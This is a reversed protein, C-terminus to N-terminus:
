EGFKSKCKSFLYDDCLGLKCSSYEFSILVLSISSLSFYFNLLIYYIDRGSTYIKPSADFNAKFLLCFWFRGFFQWSFTAFRHYLDFVFTLLWLPWLVSNQTVTKFGKGLAIMYLLCFRFRTLFPSPTANKYCFTRYLDLIFTLPWLPWYSSIRCLLKSARM